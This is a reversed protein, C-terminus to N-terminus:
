GQALNQWDKGLEGNQRSREYKGGGGEEKKAVM